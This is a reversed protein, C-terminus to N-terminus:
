EEKSIVLLMFSYARGPLLILKSSYPMTIALFVLIFSSSSKTPCSAETRSTPEYIDAHSQSCWFSVLSNTQKVQSASIAIKATFLLPIHPKKKSNQHHSFFYGNM